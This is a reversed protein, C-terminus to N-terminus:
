NYDYFGLKDGIESAAGFPEHLMSVGERYYDQVHDSKEKESCKFKGVSLM